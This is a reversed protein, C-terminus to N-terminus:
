SSTDRGDNDRMQNWYIDGTYVLVEKGPSVEKVHSEVREAIKPSHEDFEQNLLLAVIIREDSVYVQSIKIEDWKNLESSIKSAEENYFEKNYSDPKNHPAEMDEQFDHLHQAQEQEFRDGKEENGLSNEAEQKTGYNIPMTSDEMGEEIMRNDSENQMCGALIFPVLMICKAFANKM